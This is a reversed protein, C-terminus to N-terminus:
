DDAELAKNFETWWDYAGKSNQMAEAKRLAYMRGASANIFKQADSKRGFLSLPGPLSKPRITGGIGGDGISALVAAFEKAPKYSGAIVADVLDVDEPGRIGFLKIRAIAAQRDIEADIASGVQEYYAPDVDSEFQVSAATRDREFDHLIREKAIKADIGAVTRQLRVWEQQVADPADQYDASTGAVQSSQGWNSVSSTSGSM